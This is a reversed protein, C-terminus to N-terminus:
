FHKYAIVAEDNSRNFTIYYASFYSTGYVGHTFNSKDVRIFMNLPLFEVNLLKSNIFKIYSTQQADSQEFSYTDLIENQQQETLENFSYVQSRNYMSTMNKTKITIQNTKIQYHLIASQKEFSM